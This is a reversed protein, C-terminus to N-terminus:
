LRCFIISYRCIVHSSFITPVMSGSIEANPDIGIFLTDNGHSLYIGAFSFGGDVVRYGRVPEIANCYLPLYMSGHLCKRLDENSTWYSYRVHRLPFQTVGVTLRGNVTKFADPNDLLLDLADDVVLTNHWIGETHARESLNRYLNDMFDASKSLAIGLAFFVGASDGHVSQLESHYNPGWRKELARM